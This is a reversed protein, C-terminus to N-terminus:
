WLVCQDAHSRSMQESTSFQNRHQVTKTVRLSVSEGQLKFRGNDFCQLLGSAKQGSLYNCVRRGNCFCEPTRLEETWESLQLGQLRQWLMAPTRLDETRESLHSGQQMMPTENQIQYGQVTISHAPSVPRQECLEHCLAALCQHLIGHHFEVQKAM